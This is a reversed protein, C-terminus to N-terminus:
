QTIGFMREMLGLDAMVHGVTCYVRYYCYLLALQDTVTWRFFHATTARVTPPQYCGATGTHAPPSAPLPAAAAATTADAATAAAATPQHPQCRRGQALAGAAAQAQM